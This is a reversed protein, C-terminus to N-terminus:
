RRSFLAGEFVGIAVQQGGGSVKNGVFYEGEGNATIIAELKNLCDPLFVEEYEKMM